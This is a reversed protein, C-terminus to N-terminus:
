EGKSEGTLILRVVRVLPYAIPVSKALAALRTQVTILHHWGHPRLHSLHWPGEGTCRTRPTRSWKGRRPAGAPAWAGSAAFTVGQWRLSVMICSALSLPLDSMGWTYVFVPQNRKLYISFSKSESPAVSILASKSPLGEHFQQQVCVDDQPGRPPRFPKGFRGTEESWLSEKSRNNNACARVSPISSTV